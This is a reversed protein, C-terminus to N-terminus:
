LETMALTKELEEPQVLSINVQQATSLIVGFTCALLPALRSVLM